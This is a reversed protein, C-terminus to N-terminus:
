NGQQSQQPQAEPKWETLLKPNRWFYLAAEWQVREDAKSLPTRKTSVCWADCKEMSVGQQALVETLSFLPELRWKKKKGGKAATLSLELTESIASINSIRIGGINKETGFDVNPDRYLRMWRGIWARGDKGWAERLARRMTKCPFYPKEGGIEMKVPQTDTDIVIVNVIRVFVPRDRVDDATLQDSKPALTPTVDIPYESM